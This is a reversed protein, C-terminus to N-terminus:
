ASLLKEATEKALLAITDKYHNEMVLAINCEEAVPLCSQLVEVVLRVGEDEPVGPRKQGSPVRCFEGELEATVRIIEKQKEVEKQWMKKDNITFDPSYCIMPMQFGREAISNWAM